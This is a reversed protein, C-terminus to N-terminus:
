SLVRGALDRVAKNSDNKQVGELVLSLRRIFEPDASIAQIVRFRVRSEKDVTSRKLLEIVGEIENKPLGHEIHARLAIFGSVRQGRDDAICLRLVSPLELLPAIKYIEEATIKRLKRPKSYYDVSMEVIKDFIVQSTSSTPLRQNGPGEDLLLRSTALQTKINHSLTEIHAEMPPTLADLWHLSRIYFDLDGTPEVEDVRFPIITIECNAAKTVERIVQPSGNAGSSFVLIFLKSLPIAESIAGAWTRGPEIDRPAIWCRIRNAELAACIADAVTKDRKSYSIFVDHAMTGRTLHDVIIINPNIGPTLEKSTKKM